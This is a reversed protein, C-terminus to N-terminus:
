SVHKSSQESTPNDSQELIITTSDSTKDINDGTLMEIVSSGGNDVIVYVVEESNRDTESDMEKAVLTINNELLQLEQQQVNSKKADDMNCGPQFDQSKLNGNKSNDMSKDPAHNAHSAEDQKEESINSIVISKDVVLNTEQKKREGDQRTCGADEQACEVQFIEEHNGESMVVVETLNEDNPSQSQLNNVAQAIAQITEAAEMEQNDTITLLNGDGQVDLIIKGICQNDEMYRHAEGVMSLPLIRNVIPSLPVTSTPAFHPLIKESFSAVLNAKYKYTSARLKVGKITIRKNLITDFLPGNINAGSLVGYVIWHGEPAIVRANHEWHTEGVCDLIVNVGEGKTLKLISDAFQDTKYNFGDVAGLNKCLEIKEPSSTTVIAKGGALNVLQIAATGVGSAGAHILVTDGAQLKGVNHLLDYATLWVQPIAAAACLTMHSPVQMIHDESVCVYEANGGGNCPAMVKMGKEWKKKCKPGAKVVTGSAEIGLARSAGPLPPLLGQRQLTDARNVSSAAVKILVTNKYPEPQSMEGIYIKDASGPKDMLAAFMSAVESKANRNPHNCHTSNKPLLIYIRREIEVNKGQKVDQRLSKAAVRRKWESTRPLRYSPFLVIEKMKIISPCGCKKTIINVTGRMRKSKREENKSINDRYKLKRAVQMDEGYECLMDKSNVHIYPCNEDSASFFIVPESDQANTPRQLLDWYVRHSSKHLDTEGFQNHRSFRTTFKANMENEYHRVISYADQISHVYGCYDSSKGVFLDKWIHEKDDIGSDIIEGASMRM